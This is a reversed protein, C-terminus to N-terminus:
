KEQKQKDYEAIYKGMNAIRKLRELREIKKQEETKKDTM